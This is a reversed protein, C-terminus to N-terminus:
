DHRLRRRRIYLVFSVISLGVSLIMPAGLFLWGAPTLNLRSTYIWLSGTIFSPAAVLPGSWHGRASPFFSVFLLGVLVIPISLILPSFEPIDDALIM